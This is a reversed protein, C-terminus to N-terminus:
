SDRCTSYHHLSHADASVVDADPAGPLALDSARLVPNTEAPLWTYARSRM